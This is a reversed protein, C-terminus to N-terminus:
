YLYRFASRVMLFLLVALFIDNFGLSGVWAGASGGDMLMDFLGTRWFFFGISCFVALSLSLQRALVQRRTIALTSYYVLQGGDMPFIPMINFIFLSQNVLASVKLGLGLLSLGQGAILTEPAHIRLQDFALNSGLWLGLSVVPGAAVIAIERGLHSNDRRSECLGGFAWLTITLGYAGLAKAMLGHGLEHLVIGLILAILVLIVFEVGSGSSGSWVLLVLVAVSWHLFIPVGALNGIYWAERRLNQMM